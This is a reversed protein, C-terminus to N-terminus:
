KKSKGLSAAVCVGVFAVVCGIGVWMTLTGQSGDHLVIEQGQADRRVLRGDSGLTYVSGNATRTNRELTRLYRSSATNLDIEHVSLCAGTEDFVALVSGRVWIIGLGDDTWDLQFSGTCQFVYGYQFAGDADLVAVYKGGRPRSFGLAVMGDERVDWCAIARGSADEEWAVLAANNLFAKREAEPKDLLTLAADEALAALPLLLALLMALLRKM